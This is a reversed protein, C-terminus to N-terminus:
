VIRKRVMVLPPRLWALDHSFEYSRSHSRLSVGGGLFFVIVGGGSHDNSGGFLASVPSLVFTSGPILRM